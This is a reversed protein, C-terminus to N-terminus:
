KVEYLYFANEGPSHIVSVTRNGKKFITMEGESSAKTWGKMKIAILPLFSTYKYDAQNEDEVYTSFISVPFDKIKSQKTM